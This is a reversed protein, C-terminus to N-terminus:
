TGYLWNGKKESAVSVGALVMDRIEYVGSDGSIPKGNERVMKMGGWEKPNHSATIQIGGDTKLFAAAFYLTDTSVLGIDIVDVGAETLAKITTQKFEEGSLRMDCGVVVTKPKLFKAFAQSIKYVVEANIQTPYIGRIDYAKFISKDITEM